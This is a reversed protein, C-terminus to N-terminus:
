LVSVIYNGNLTIECLLIERQTMGTSQSPVKFSLTIGMSPPIPPLLFEISSNDMKQEAVSTSGVGDVYISM